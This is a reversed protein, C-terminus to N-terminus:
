NIGDLPWRMTDWMKVFKRILSASPTLQGISSVQGQYQQGGGKGLSETGGEDSPM